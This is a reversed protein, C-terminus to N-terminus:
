WDRASPKRLPWIVRGLPGVVAPLEDESLLGANVGVYPAGCGDCCAHKADGHKPCGADQPPPPPPALPRPRAPLVFGPLPEPAAPGHKSARTAAAPAPKAAQAAQAAALRAMLALSRPDVPPYEFPLPKYVGRADRLPCPCRAALEGCVRCTPLWLQTEVKFRHECKPELTGCTACPRPREDAADTM